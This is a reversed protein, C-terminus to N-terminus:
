TTQGKSPCNIFPHHKGCKPLACVHFGRDCRGSTVKNNCTGLNYGYCIADGATTTARCGGNLLVLPMKPSVKNKGKSKGKGKSTVQQPKYPAPRTSAPKDTEKSESSRGMLPQLLHMVETKNTCSEFVKDLPRETATM